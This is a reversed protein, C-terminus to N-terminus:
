VAENMGSFDATGLLDAFGDFEQTNLADAVADGRNVIVGQHVQKGSAANGELYARDAIEAGAGQRALQLDSRGGEILM